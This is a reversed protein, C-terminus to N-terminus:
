CIHCEAYCPEAITSHTTISLTTNLKITISTKVSLTAPKTSTANGLHLLEKNIKMITTITSCHKFRRCLDVAYKLILSTIYHPTM